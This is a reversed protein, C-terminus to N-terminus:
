TSPEPDAGPLPRAQGPHCATLRAIAASAAAIHESQTHGSTRRPMLDHDGDPLWELEINGSLDYSEVEARNGLPDRDGQVILAPCTLAALHLVRLNAPKGSPHFPYGVCVLGAIDGRAFLEDAILSAVRGGMSKGGIWLRAGPLTALAGVVTHYEQALREIKPPPRKIGTHRRQAMYEFEFRSTKIGCLALSQALKELFASDMPAGAGHAFVLHARADSPGTTLVHLM